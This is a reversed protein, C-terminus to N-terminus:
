DPRPLRHAETTRRSTAIEPPIVERPADTCTVGARVHVRAWRYPAIPHDTEQYHARAHQNPSDDSCAVWGCSLCLWLEVLARWPDLVGPLQHVHSSPTHSPSTAVRVRNPETARRSAQDRCRQRSHQRNEPLFARM